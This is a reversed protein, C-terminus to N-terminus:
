WVHPFNRKAAIIFDRFQGRPSYNRAIEAMIQVEALLPAHRAKPLWVAFRWHITLRSLNGATRGSRTPTISLAL